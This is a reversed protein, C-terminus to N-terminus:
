PENILQKYDLRYLDEISTLKGLDYLTIITSRSFFEIGIKQVCFLIQEIIKERCKPNKCYIHVGDLSLDSFTGCGCRVNLIPEYPVIKKCETIKPIVDNGHVNWCYDTM